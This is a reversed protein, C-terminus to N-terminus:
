NCTNQLFLFQLIKFIKVILLEFLARGINAFQQLKPDYRDDVNFDLTKSINKHVFISLFKFDM